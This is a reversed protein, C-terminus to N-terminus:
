KENVLQEIISDLSKLYGSETYHVTDVTDFDGVIYDLNVYKIDLENCTKAISKVYDSYVIASSFKHPIIYVIKDRNEAGILDIDTKLKQCVKNILEPDDSTNYFDNIAGDLIIYDANEFSNKAYNLQADIDNKNSDLLTAGGAAFNESTTNYYKNIYYDWARKNNEQGKMLSDGLCVLHKNKLVKSYKEKPEYEKITQISKSIIKTDDDVMCEIIYNLTKEYGEKNYHVTDKTDLDSVFTNLDVCKINNSECLQITNKVYENYYTSIFKHPIIYIIKQSNEKGIVNLITDINNQIQNSILNTINSNGNDHWCDNVGGDIVIYDADKISDINQNIQDYIYSEDSQKVVTAGGVAYNSSKTGYYKDLYYSWTKTERDLGHVLSDGFWVVKKGNIKNYYEKNVDYGESKTFKNGLSDLLNNNHIFLGIFLLFIIVGIGIIAIYKKKNKM